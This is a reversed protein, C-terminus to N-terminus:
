ETEGHLFPGAAHPRGRAADNSRRRSSSRAPARPSSRAPVARRVGRHDHATASSTRRQQHRHLVRRDHLGEAARLTVGIKWDDYRSRTTTAHQRRRRLNRPDHRQVEAHRLAGILTLKPTAPRSLQGDPRPLLHRERRARRLDQQQRQLLVQGLAMELQARRLDGLTDAKPAASEGLRTVDGPYWYYLTGLDYRSIPKGFAARTAATSTWSWAAAPAHLRRRRAALQHELGLHRRLLRERPQLRVRGPAGPRRQDADARPLHVPQLPRRQRHPHTAFRARSSRRLSRRIRARSRGSGGIVTKKFM